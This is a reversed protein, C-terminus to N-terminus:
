NTKVQNTNSTVWTQLDEKKEEILTLPYEYNKVYKHNGKLVLIIYIGDNANFVDEIEYGKDFYGNINDVVDKSYENPLYIMKRKMNMGGFKNHMNSDM